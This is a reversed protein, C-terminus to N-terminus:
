AYPGFPGDPHRGKRWSDVAYWRGFVAVTMSLFELWLRFRPVRAEDRAQATEPAWFLGRERRICMDM